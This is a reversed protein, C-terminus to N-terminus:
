PQCCAAGLGAVLRQLGDPGGAGATSEFLSLGKLYGELTQGAELRPSKQFSM